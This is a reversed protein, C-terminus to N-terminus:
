DDPPRHPPDARNGRANRYWRHAKGLLAALGSGAKSTLYGPLGAAVVSYLDVQPSMHRGTICWLAFHECNNFLPHYLNEGLRGIARARIEAPAFRTPSPPRRVQVPHGSLFNELESLVVPGSQLGQALGSYHVVQNNGVFVGHHTYLRRKSVLHDGVSLTPLRDM